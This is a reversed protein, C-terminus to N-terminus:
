KNKNFQEQLSILWCREPFWFVLNVHQQDNGAYSMAKTKTKKCINMNTEARQETHEPMTWIMESLGNLLNLPWHLVDTAERIFPLCGWVSRWDWVEDWCSDNIIMIFTATWLWVSAEQCIHEWPSRRVTKLAKKALEQKLVVNHIYYMCLCSHLFECVSNQTLPSYCLALGEKVGM